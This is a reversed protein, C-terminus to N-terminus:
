HSLHAQKKKTLKDLRPEISSLALRIPSNIYMKSREKTKIISMTSFGSECLYTSPFPLLTKLAIETLEPYEAKVKIWFSALSPTTKFSMKLGEDAALELIKDEMKVSLDDRLPMFPNRIWANGKRPDEEEPFYHQFREALNTLHEGIDNRLASVNLDEDADAVVAALQHFMDYCDRSVRSKWAELKRKQGDIKDALTFCTAMRGQMSTNLENFITFIDALYALKALWNANQFLQTWNPKKEHLFETLENRLEFVRSLVKGRSLWRVEAHLLLQKHDSGMDDCLATFIRSNLANTKVYNVIKVVESLVSNLEVSMKKTALSERHIFCHTSKCEPSLAKIKTVVGAHRGTMAAAGDSCVGVCFKFDLGCKKVIYDEVSRFVESSTTKTPLSASFFFEEKLDGEHEFRVYVMLIALNAIDTSEDLQLSFYKALKIQGILQDEVDQAMDHIRQTITDGSLPVRAVKMAAPKGLVEMCVDEICGRVLTEGITYPKKTKAIRLAVKYSARLACKNIHTMTFIKEQHSTLESHKREFFEKPKSSMQKHKSNLHRKLNTAKMSENALVDGCIVCQPKSVGGDNMAVFGFQIFSSCYKRTYRVCIRKEPLVETENVDGDSPESTRTHADVAPRPNIFMDMPGRKAM